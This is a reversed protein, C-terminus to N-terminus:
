GNMAYNYGAAEAYDAMVSDPSVTVVMSLSCNGFVAGGIYINQMENTTANWVYKNSSTSQNFTNMVLEADKIIAGIVDFSTPVNEKLVANYKALLAADDANIAGVLVNETELWVYKCGNESTEGLYIGAKNMLTQVQKFSTPAKGDNADAYAKLVTNMKDLVAADTAVIKNTAPDWSFRCGVEALGAVSVEAATLIELVKEFTDPATNGATGIYAALATNMEALRDATDDLVTVNALVDCGYFAADGLYIVSTPITIETLANCEKFAGAGITLLGEPLTITALKACDAFVTHGLEVLGQHLTVTELASCNEFAGAGIKTVTAPIEITTVYDCDYFAHAGITTVSSPITFAKVNHVSKFADDGIATVARKDEGITSPIVVDKKEIGTYTYGIIKYNGDDNVDYLFEGEALQESANTDNNEGEDIEEENKNCAVFSALLLLALMMALFKKM